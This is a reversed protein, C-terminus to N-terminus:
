IHILSLTQKEEGTITTKGTITKNARNIALYLEYHAPQFAQYFHTAETMIEEEFQLIVSMIRWALRNRPQWTDFLERHQNFDVSKNRKAM